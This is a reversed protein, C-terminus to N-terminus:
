KLDNDLGKKSEEELFSCYEQSTALALELSIRWYEGYVSTGQRLLREYERMHIKLFEERGCKGYYLIDKYQNASLEDTAILSYRNGLNFLNFYNEARLRDEKHEGPEVDRVSYSVHPSGDVVVITALLWRAIPVDEFYPNYPMEDVSNFVYDHKQGENCDRCAPILNAPSISLLPYVSKPFFHDLTLELDPVGKGCYPCHCRAQRKIEIVYKQAGKLKRLGKVYLDILEDKSLVGRASFQAVDLPFDHITSSALRENAEVVLDRDEECGKKFKKDRRTKWCSDYLADFPTRIWSLKSPM